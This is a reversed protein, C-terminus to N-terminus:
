KTGRYDNKLQPNQLESQVMNWLDGPQFNELCSLKDCLPNDFCEACKLPPLIIDGRPKWTEADSPGFLTITRRGTAAALHTVGSDNGLYVDCNDILAGLLPLPPNEVMNKDLYHNRKWGAREKEAPGGFVL